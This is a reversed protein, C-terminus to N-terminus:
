LYEICLDRGKGSLKVYYKLKLLDSGEWRMLWIM